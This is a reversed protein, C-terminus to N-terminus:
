QMVRFMISDNIKGVHYRHTAKEAVTMPGQLIVDEKALLKFASDKILYYEVLADNRQDINVMQIWASYTSDRIITVDCDPFEIQLLTEFAPSLEKLDDTTKPHRPYDVNLVWSASQHSLSDIINKLSRTEPQRHNYYAERYLETGSYHQIMLSTDQFDFDYDLQLVYDIASARLLGEMIFANKNYHEIVSPYENASCQVLSFALVLIRFVRM